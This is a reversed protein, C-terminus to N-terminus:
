MASRIKNKALIRSIFFTPTLPKSDYSGDALYRHPARIKKQREVKIEPITTDNHEPSTM